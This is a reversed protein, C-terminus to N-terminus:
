SGVNINNGRTFNHRYETAQLTHCGFRKEKGVEHGAEQIGGTTITKRQHTYTSSSAVRVIRVTLVQHISVHRVQVRAKIRGPAAIEDPHSSCCAPTPSPAYSVM